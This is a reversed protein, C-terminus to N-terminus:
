KGVCFFTEIFVIVTPFMPTVHVVLMAYFYALNRIPLLAVLDHGGSVVNRTASISVHMLDPFTVLLAVGM